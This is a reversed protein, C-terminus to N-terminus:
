LMNPNYLSYPKPYTISLDDYVGYEISKLLNYCPLEWHGHQEKLGLGSITTAMTQEMGEDRGWVM